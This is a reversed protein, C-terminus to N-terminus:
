TATRQELRVPVRTETSTEGFFVHRLIARRMSVAKRAAESHGQGRLYRPAQADFRTLFKKCAREGITRQWFQRPTFVAVGQAIAKARIKKPDASSVGRLSYGENSVLPARHKKALEILKDDCASGDLNADVDPITAANWRDLVYDKVFYISLQVHQYAFENPDDPPTRSAMVRLSEDPLSLTTAGISHFHWGLLLSERARVRRFLADDSDGGHKEYADLLDSAAFIDLIVNTDVVATIRSAIM